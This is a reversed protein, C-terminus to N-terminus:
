VGSNDKRKNAAAAAAEALAVWASLTDQPM